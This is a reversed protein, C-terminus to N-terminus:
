AVVGINALTVVGRKSIPFTAASIKILFILFDRSNFLNVQM